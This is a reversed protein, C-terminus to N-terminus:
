MRVELLNKPGIHTRLFPDIGGPAKTSESPPTYNIHPSSNALPPTMSYFIFM